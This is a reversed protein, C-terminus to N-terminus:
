KAGVISSFTFKMLGAGSPVSIPSPRTTARPPVIANRAPSSRVAAPSSTAVAVAVARITDAGRQRHGNAQRLCM